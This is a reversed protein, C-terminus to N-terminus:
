EDDYVEPILKQLRQWDIASTKLLNEPLLHIYYITDSLNTHGM